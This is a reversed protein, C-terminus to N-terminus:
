AQYCTDAVRRKVLRYEGANEKATKRYQRFIDLIYRNKPSSGVAFRLSFNQPVGGIAPVM